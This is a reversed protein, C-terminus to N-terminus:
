SSVVEFMQYEVADHLARGEAIVMIQNLWKYREVGTEFRPQTVFYTDGFNAEKRGALSDYTAENFHIIGNYEVYINVDDDTRLTARVDLRGVNDSDIVVWDAGSPLVEGKLRDGDFTGGSIDAVIRNGKSGIGVPVPKKLRVHMRMLPLLRM